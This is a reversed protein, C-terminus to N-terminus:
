GIERKMKIVQLTSGDRLPERDGTDIFGMSTYLHVAEDNTGTVTLEVTLAGLNRMWALAYEVLARGAGQRRCPPDVWMAFLLGVSRDNEDVRCYAMGASSGDIEAVLSASLRDAATADIMQHWSDDPLHADAQY